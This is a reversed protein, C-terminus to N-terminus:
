PMTVSRHAAGVDRENTKGHRVQHQGPHEARRHNPIGCPRAVEADRMEMGAQHAEEQREDHADRVPEQGPGTAAAEGHAFPNGRLRRM